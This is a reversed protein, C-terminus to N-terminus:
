LKLFRRHPMESYLMCFDFTVLTEVKLNNIETKVAEIIEIQRFLMPMLYTAVNAIFNNFFKM